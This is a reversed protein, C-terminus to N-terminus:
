FKRPTRTDIVFQIRRRTIEEVSQATVTDFGRVKNAIFTENFNLKVVAVYYGDM